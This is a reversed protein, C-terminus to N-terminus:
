EQFFFDAALPKTDGTLGLYTVYLESALAPAPVEFQTKSLGREVVAAPLGLVLAYKEAFFKPNSQIAGVVERVDALLAVLFARNATTFDKRALLSVQPARGDGGNLPAWAQSFTSIERANKLLVLSSVLPEPLGAVHAKKALLLAMAQAPEAYDIKVKDQLGRAKLITRLQVDLPGNVVPLLVSKGALDDLSRIDPDFTVLGSVDWVLTAVCVLSGGAQSNKIALTSGTLLLQASGHILEAVAMPHDDFFSTEISVGALTKGGLELVPISSVSRALSIIAKAPAQSSLNVALLVGCLVFLNNGMEDVENINILM